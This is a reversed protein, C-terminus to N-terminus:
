ESDAEEEQCPVEARSELLPWKEHLWTLKGPFFQTEESALFAALTIKPEIALWAAKAVM